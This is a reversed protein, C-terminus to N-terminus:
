PAAAPTPSAAPTATVPVITATELQERQARRWTSFFAVVVFTVIILLMFRLASRPVPSAPPSDNPPNM